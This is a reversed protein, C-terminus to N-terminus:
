WVRISSLPSCLRQKNFNVSFVGGREITTTGVAASSLHSSNRAVVAPFAGLRPHVLPESWKLRFSCVRIHPFTATKPQLSGLLRPWVGLVRGTWTVKFINLAGIFIRIQFEQRRTNSCKQTFAFLLVTKESSKQACTVLKPNMWFVTLNDSDPFIRLHRFCGAASMKRFTELGALEWFPPQQLCNVAEGELKTIGNSGRFLLGHQIPKIKMIVKFRCVIKSEAKFINLCEKAHIQHQATLLSFVWWLTVLCSCVARVEDGCSVPRGGRQVEGNLNLLAQFQMNYLLRRYSPQFHNVHLSSSLRTLAIVVKIQQVSHAAMM